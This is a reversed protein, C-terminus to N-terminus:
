REQAASEDDGCLWREVDDLDWSHMWRGAISPNVTGGTDPDILAYLGHGPTHPDRARSRSLRYGQRAAM